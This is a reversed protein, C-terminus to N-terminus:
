LVFLRFLVSFDINKKMMNEIQGLDFGHITDVCCFVLCNNNRNPNTHRSHASCLAIQPGCLEKMSQFGNSILVHM